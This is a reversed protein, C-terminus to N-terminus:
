ASRLAKACSTQFVVGIAVQDSRQRGLGELKRQFATCVLQEDSEPWAARDILAVIRTAKFAGQDRHVM